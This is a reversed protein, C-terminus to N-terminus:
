FSLGAFVHCSLVVLNSATFLGTLRGLWGIIAYIVEEAIPWDNWNASFPANLHAVWKPLLLTIDGDLYAKANALVLLADGDYALPVTWAQFSTLGNVICWVFVIFLALIAPWAIHNARKVYHKHSLYNVM